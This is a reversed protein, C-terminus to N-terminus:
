LYDAKIFVFIFADHDFKWSFGFKLLGITCLPSKENIFVIEIAWGYSILLENIPFQYEPEFNFENLNKYFYSCHMLGM